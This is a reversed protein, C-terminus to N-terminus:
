NKWKSKERLMPMCTGLNEVSAWAMNVGGVYWDGCPCYGTKQHLCDKMPNEKM